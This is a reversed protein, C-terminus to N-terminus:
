KNMSSQLKERIESISDNSTHLLITKQRSKLGQNLSVDSKKIGLLSSLFKILESNAEGDVPPANIQIGIGEDTIDTIKNCKAGPKAIIKLIINGNKNCYISGNKLPIQANSEAKSNKSIVTKKPMKLESFKRIM